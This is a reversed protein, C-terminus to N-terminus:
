IYKEVFDGVIKSFCKNKAWEQNREIHDSKEVGDLINFLRNLALIQWGEEMPDGTVIVGRDGVSEELAALHNSVILTNSAAAEYATLCCTEAFTCPYFWVHSRSWFDRLTEGNVWGHNTVTEKQEELLVEIQDVVEKHYKQLWENKTDCFVNLKATPYRKVINPFMKLLPLLGRNPFSPYIFSYDDRLVDSSFTSTEIGYSIVRTKSELVPFLNVFQQRHWESICMVGKLNPHLPIIADVSATDHLVLYVKEVGNLVTVPIYEPFRNVICVDIVMTELYKLYKSIPNYTVCNYDKSEECDCFVIVKYNYLNALTEAYRISFTESGGLGRTRLTEGDWQKWGGPSVFCIVKKEGDRTKPTPKVQNIHYFINLWKIVLNDERYELIRRCCQEGLEYERNNFCHLLLEKPIHYQYIHKRFSMTIEPIGVNFAQKLYMMGLANNGEDIYHKGVFYLSETRNPDFNYCDIYKQHCQEWTYKGQSYMDSIVAIYYLSDQIEQKFGGGQKVRQEFYFLADNWKELGVYSDGLYYLSRPDSPDDKYMKELLKIDNLKREKTRASMYPSNRDTIRGSDYPISVNLNNETQIIEHIVNIYRLNRCSKIVRNSTYMVDKDELVLSYSDVIDDGRVFTLFERLNGLLVYSDDLIVNFVCKEGALDLLRNRSDRFNIFPEQFLEGPKDKLVDRIVDITGDTSGTDLITWYDIYPLNQTLVDHFDEGADKVMIVLNILNDYTLVNNDLCHKFQTQFKEWVSDHVHLFWMCFLVLHHNPKEEHSGFHVLLNYDVIQREFAAKRDSDSKGEQVQIPLWEPGSIIKISM